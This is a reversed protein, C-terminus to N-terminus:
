SSDNVEFGEYNFWLLKKLDLVVTLDLLLFNHVYETHKLKIDFLNVSTVNGGYFSCDSTKFAQGKTLPFLPINPQMHNIIYPCYRLALAEFM